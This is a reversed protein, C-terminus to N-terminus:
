GRVLPLLKATGREIEALPRSIDFGREHDWRACGAARTLGYLEVRVDLDDPLGDGYGDILHPALDPYHFAFAAVDWAPDGSRPEFDILGTIRMDDRAIFLHDLGPDDHLLVGRQPGTFLEEHRDLIEAIRESTTAEILRHELLYPMGWDTSHTVASAHDTYSGTPEAGPRDFRLDGFGELEITHLRRLLDGYGRIAEILADGEVPDHQLDTGEVATVIVFEAPWRERTRDVHLVRPVPVGVTAAREYAWAAVDIPHGEHESKFFVGGSPLELRYVHTDELTPVHVVSLPREGLADRVIEEVVTMPEKRMVAGMMEKM